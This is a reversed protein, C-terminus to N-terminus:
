IIDIIVSKKTSLLIFMYYYRFIYNIYINFMTCINKKSLSQGQLFYFLFYYYFSIPDDFSVDCFIVENDTYM